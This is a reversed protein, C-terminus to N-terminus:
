ISINREKGEVDYANIFSSLSTGAACYIMQDLFIFQKTKILKYKNTEKVVFPDKDRNFIEKMFGENALLGIDYFSSNFGLIPLERCYSELQQKSKEDVKDILTKLKVHM